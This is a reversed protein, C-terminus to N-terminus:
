NIQVPTLTCLGLVSLSAETPLNIIGSGGPFADLKLQPSGSAGRRRDSGVFKRYPRKTVTGNPDYDISPVAFRGENCGTM